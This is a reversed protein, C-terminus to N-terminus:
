RAAEPVQNAGTGLYAEIVAPNRQIEAPAGEAIKRGFDLAVVRDSVRMVFNLHHEVMLVTVNFATNSPAFDTGSVDWVLTFDLVMFSAGTFPSTSDVQDNGMGSPLLLLAQSSSSTQGAGGKATTSDTGGGFLIKDKKPTGAGYTNSASGTSITVGGSTNPGGGSNHTVVASSAGANFTATALTASGSAGLVAACSAWPAAARLFGRGYTTQRKM